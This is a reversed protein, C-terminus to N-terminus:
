KLLSKFYKTGMCKKFAWDSIRLYVESDTVKVEESIGNLVFQRFHGCEHQLTKIADISDKKFRSQDFVISILNKAPFWCCVANCNKINDVAISFDMRKRTLYKEVKDCEGKKEYDFVVLEFNVNFTENYFKDIKM